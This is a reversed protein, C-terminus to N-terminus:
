RKWRIGKFSKIMNLKNDKSRFLYIIGFLFLVLVMILLPLGISIILPSFVLIWSIDSISFKISFLIFFIILGLLQVLFLKYLRENNVKVTSKKRM